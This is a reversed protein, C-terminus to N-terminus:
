LTVDAMTAMLGITKPRVAMPTLRCYQISYRSLQDARKSSPSDSGVLKPRQELCTHQHGTRSSHQRRVPRRRLPRGKELYQDCMEGHFWHGLRAIMRLKQIVLRSDRMLMPLVVANLLKRENDVM